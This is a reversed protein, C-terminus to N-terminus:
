IGRSGGASARRLSGVARGQQVRGDCTRHCASGGSCGHGSSRKLAHPQMKFGPADAEDLRQRLNNLQSPVDNLFGKLITAALKRDGMLRRLLANGDFVKEIQEQAGQSPGLHPAPLWKALVAALLSLDVPKALYDNMGEKLCKDRDGSMADATLATVPIGLHTSRIRRTAEYGDM